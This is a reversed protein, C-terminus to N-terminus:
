EDEMRVYIYKNYGSGGKSGADYIIGYVPTRQQNYLINGRVWSGDIGPVIIRAKPPQYFDNIITLYIDRDEESIFSIIIKDEWAVIDAGTQDSDVANTLVHRDSVRTPESWPNNSYKSSLYLFGDSQRFVAVTAKKGPLYVLPLIAINESETTGLNQAIQQPPTLSNDTLLQRHWGKGDMSKYAIDVTGDPLSVLSPNTLGVPSDHYIYEVKTWKGNPELISYQLQDGAAFVAVLSGDPRLTIDATQTSPEDHSTILRSDVIWRDKNEAHDNTAFAHHYVSESIQHIIHIIGDESMVSGVGELDSVQPRNEADVEFWSQGGDTSKLIMFINDTETPEMIFYLEGNSNEYPGIRAPTEVFTGGLHGKPVNVSFAPMPGALPRGLHDVVRLSFHDGDRVLQPGDAWRRIVMAFEWDASAGTEPEPFWGPTTPALNIGAGPNAPKKSISLLNDAEEGFFFAECSVISVPPSAASEYPFEQAEIYTWPENNWRYQLSYQRRYFSTNSEIEFRIRFPTDVTQSTAKNVADAWGLDEDLDMSFDARVRFATVCDTSYASDTKSSQATAQWPLFVNAIFLLSGLVILLRNM